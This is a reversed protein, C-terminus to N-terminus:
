IKLNNKVLRLALIFLKIIYVDYVYRGISRELVYNHNTLKCLIKKHTIIKIM